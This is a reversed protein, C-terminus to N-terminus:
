VCMADEDEDWCCRVRECLFFTAINLEVSRKRKLKKTGLLTHIHGRYDSVTSKLKKQSQM